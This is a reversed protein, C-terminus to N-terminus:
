SDWNYVSASLWAKGRGDLKQGIVFARFCHHIACIANIDNTFECIASALEEQSRWLGNIPVFFRGAAAPSKDQRGFRQM